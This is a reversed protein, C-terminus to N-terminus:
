QIWYSFVVRLAFPKGCEFEVWFGLKEFIRFTLIPNQANLELTEFLGDPGNEATLFTTVIM